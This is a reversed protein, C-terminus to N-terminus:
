PVPDLHSPRTGPAADAPLIEGTLMFRVLRQSASWLYRSGVAVLPVGVLVRPSTAMAVLSLTIYPLTVVLLTLTIAKNTPWPPVEARAIPIVSENM